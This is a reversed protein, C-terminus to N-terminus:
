FFGKHRSTKIKKEFYLILFNRFSGIMPIGGLCVNYTRDWQCLQAPIRQLLSRPRAM